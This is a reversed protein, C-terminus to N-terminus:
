KVVYKVNQFILWNLTRHDVQRLRGDWDPKDGKEAELDIVTSRGFGTETQVLYGVLTREEGKYAEKVLKKIDKIPLIKGKNASEIADNIDSVKPQKNFNVSFVTNGVSGFREILETRTVQVTETFQNASFSGEALISEAIGFQYGRENVVVVPLGGSHSKVRYYQIESLFDGEKVKSVDCKNTM